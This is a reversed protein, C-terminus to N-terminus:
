FFISQVSWYDYARALEGGCKSVTFDPEPQRSIGQPLSSARSPPRPCSMSALQVVAKALLSAGM